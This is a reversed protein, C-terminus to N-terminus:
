SFSVWLGGFMSIVFALLSGGGEWGGGKVWTKSSWKVCSPPGFPEVPLNLLNLLVLCLAPCSKMANDRGVCRVCQWGHAPWRPIPLCPIPPALGNLVPDEPPQPGEERRPGTRSWGPLM